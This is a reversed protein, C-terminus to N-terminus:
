YIRVNREFGTGIKSDLFYRQEDEAVAEGGMEQFGM